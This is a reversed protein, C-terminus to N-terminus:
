IIPVLKARNRQIRESRMRSYQINVAIAEGRNILKFQEMAAVAHHHMKCKNPDNHDKLKGNM